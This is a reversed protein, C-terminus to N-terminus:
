EDTPGKGTSTFPSELSNGDDRAPLNELARIENATHTGAARLKAYSEARDKPNARLLDDVVFEISYTKREDADLLVRSYAASWAELWPLLSYQLFQRNQEVSNSWTARSLDGIMSVPVNLARAIEVTQFSRMELFQADVSSLAISQHDLGDELIAVGGSNSGSFAASWSEKLNKMATDGLTKPSKLVSGPRAGNAFLKNAHLELTAALGIADRALTIPSVGGFAEIALVDQYSFLRTGGQGTRVRYQPEGTSTIEKTTSSPDLRIFEQVSGNVRNAYAFGAGYLLADTTLQTRLAGASTWGNALDHVLAYAAHDRAPEKGGEPLREFVKAPLTGCTGAILEIAAKVAPVRM